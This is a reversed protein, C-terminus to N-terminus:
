PSLDFLNKFMDGIKVNEIKGNNKNRIRVYTDYSICKGVNTEGILLNLSAYDWGGNLMVDVSKWGTPIKYVNADQRHTDPDDFDDGLDEDDNQILDINGIIQKIKTAAENVNDYNIEDLGRVFEISQMMNDRLTKSLTWAKFRPELWEAEYQSNDAKLLIKLLDPNIKREEENMKVMAVIQKNQPVTHNKSNLFETRILSYIFQIDENKFFFPQVKEFHNPHDLIYRFFIKETNNNVKETSM